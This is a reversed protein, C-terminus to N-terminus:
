QDLPGHGASVATQGRRLQEVASRDAMDGIDAGAAFVKPGGTLVVARVNDDADLEALAENVERVPDPSLANLVKPRNLTITAIPAEIEVLIHEYGMAAIMPWIPEPVSRSEYPRTASSRLIEIVSRQLKRQM